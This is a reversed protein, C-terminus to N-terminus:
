RFSDRWLLLRAGGWPDEAFWRTRSRLQLGAPSILFAAAAIVAVAGGVLWRRPVRWGRWLLWVVLGAVAGLAAARTGTLLMAIAALVTVARWWRGPLALSLFVVFLLWTAFYSVYGLSSPPRVITWIGEGIHYGSAPLIPDFGFYQAIGYIATVAGAVSIVRLMPLIRHAQTSICVALLLIALQTFAGFSRWSTGWVSLGPNTGLASSVALSVAGLAALLWLPNRWSARPWTWAIGVGALLVVLKPTVDFYFSLGPALILAILAITGALLWHM